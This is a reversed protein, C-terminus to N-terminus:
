AVPHPLRHTLEWAKYPEGTKVYSFGSGQLCERCSLSWNHPLSSRVEDGICIGGDPILKMLKCAINAPTGIAVLSSKQGHIGVRAITVPGYDVGIRFRIPQVGRKQFWPSILQDNVYHMVLAAEAAPRVCDSITKENEGFYAMLGDGTNKEYTGGFDHVISLMEAMFVNMTALISKQEDELWNARASFGCIDLFLVTLHFRRGSGITVDDRDPMVRGVAVDEIRDGLVDIRRDCRAIVDAIYKKTFKTPTGPYRALFQYLNPLQNSMRGIGWM